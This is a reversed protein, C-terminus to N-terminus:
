GKKEGRGQVSPHRVHASPTCSLGATCSLPRKGGQHQLPRPAALPVVASCQGDCSSAKCPTIGLPRHTVWGKHGFVGNRTAGQCSGGGKQPSPPNLHSVLAFSLPATPLTYWRSRWPARAISGVEGPSARGRGGLGPTFTLLGRHQAEQSHLELHAAWAPIPSCGARVWRSPECISSSSTVRFERRHALGTDTYQGLVSYSPCSLSGARERTACDRSFQITSFRVGWPMKPHWGALGSVRRGLRAHGSQM